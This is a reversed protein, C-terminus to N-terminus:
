ARRTMWRERRNVVASLVPPTSLRILWGNLM